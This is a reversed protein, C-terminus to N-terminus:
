HWPFAQLNKHIFLKM